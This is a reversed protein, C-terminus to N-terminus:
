WVVSVGYAKATAAMAPIVSVNLSRAADNSFATYPAHLVANAPVKQLQADRWADWHRSAPAMTGSAAAVVATVVTALAVVLMMKPIQTVRTAPVRHLPPPLQSPPHFPPQSPTTAAGVTGLAKKQGLAPGACAWRM